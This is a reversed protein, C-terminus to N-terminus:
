EFHLPRPEMHDMQSELFFPAYLFRNLAAAVVRPELDPREELWYQVLNHHGALAFALYLDWTEERCPLTDLRKRFHDHMFITAKHTFTPDGHPGNLAVVKDRNSKLIEMRRIMTPTPDLENDSFRAQLALENLEGMSELLEDEFVKVVTDVSDYCRYFTSKSVHALRIVDSVHISEVDTTRMLEFVADEIAQATPSNRHEAM